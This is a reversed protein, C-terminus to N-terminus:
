DKIYKKCLYYVQKCQDVDFYGIHCYDEDIELEGALWKYAKNRAVFKQLKSEEMKRQWLKDFVEHAKKKWYRLASDALRGLAKNTNKHVGVYAKCPRCLYIMGYSNGKGYVAESDVYETKEGCYPCVKGHLIDDWQLM